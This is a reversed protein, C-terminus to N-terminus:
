KSSSLEVSQTDMVPNCYREVKITLPQPYDLAAEGFNYRVEDVVTGEKSRSFGGFNIAAFQKNVTQHVQGEADTYSSPLSMSFSSSYPDNIPKRRLLIEGAEAHEEPVPEVVELDNGPAEIIQKKNLDVVIKLRDKDQAAIGAIKLAVSDLPGALSKKFILTAKSDDSYVESNHSTLLDPYYLKEIHDGSKGILVPNIWEFIQKDNNKDYEVDVYTSLPTYLLQNVIIKQGGVTLTQEPYITHNQDKLMDPDLEFAVDLSTRYKNSSSLLAEDSTETLIVGLKADQSYQRSPLLNTSYIFNVTQGARIRSDGPLIGLSTGKRPYPDQYTGFHLSFDAHVVEKDTNNQVSYLVFVKRGDTVAGAVDIRYGKNEASQRIPKVLNQELASALAPDLVSDERYAKFDDWHGTSASQVSPEDKVAVPLGSFSFILLVAAVAAIAGMGLSFIRKRSRKKGRKIGDRMANYIKMEQITETNEKVEDANQRLIREEKEIM